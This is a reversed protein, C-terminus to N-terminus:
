CLSCSSRGGAVCEQAGEVLGPTGPLLCVGYQITPIHLSMWTQDRERVIVVVRQDNGLPEDPSVRRRGARVPGSVAPGLDVTDHREKGVGQLRVEFRFLGPNERGGGPRQSSAVRQDSVQQGLMFLYACQDGVELTIWRIVELGPERCQAM